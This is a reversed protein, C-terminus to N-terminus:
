RASRERASEVADHFARAVYPPVTLGSGHAWLLDREVRWVQGAFEDVDHDLRLAVLVEGFDARQVDNNVGVPSFSASRMRRVLWRQWDALQDWLARASIQYFAYHGPEQRRIPAVVTRAVAIEGLEELGDHLRNYALVASRETVMGTLYYLMRCVDQVAELRALAGLVQLKAGPPSIDAVVPPAGLQRQLEDLILGHRLEQSYWVESYFRRDISPPHPILTALEAVNREVELEVRALYALVPGFRERLVVPRQVSYDVTALDIPPHELALRDVHDVLRAEATEAGRSHDM